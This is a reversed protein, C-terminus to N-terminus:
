ITLLYYEIIQSQDGCVIITSFAKTTIEIWRVDSSEGNQILTRAIALVIQFYPM